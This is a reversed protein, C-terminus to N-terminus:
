GVIPPLANAGQGYYYIFLYAVIALEAALAIIVLFIARQIHKHKSANVQALSFIQRTYIDITAAEDKIM